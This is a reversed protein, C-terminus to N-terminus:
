TNLKWFAAHFKFGTKSRITQYTFTGTVLSLKFPRFAFIQLPHKPGEWYTFVKCAKPDFKMICVMDVNFPILSRRGCRIM